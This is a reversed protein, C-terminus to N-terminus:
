EKTQWQIWQEKQGIRTRNYYSIMTQGSSYIAEQLLYSGKAMIDLLRLHDERNRSERKTVTGAKEKLGQEQADKAWGQGGSIPCRCGMLACGRSQLWARQGACVWSRLVSQPIGKARKEASWCGNRRYRSVHVVHQWHGNIAVAAVIHACCSHWKFRGLVCAWLFHPIPTSWGNGLLTCKPNM